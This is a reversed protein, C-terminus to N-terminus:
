SKSNELYYEGNNTEFLMIYMDDSIKNFPSSWTIGYEMKSDDSFYVIIAKVKNLITFFEASIEDEIFPEINAIFYGKNDFKNFAKVASSLDVMSTDSDYCLTIHTILPDDIKVIDEKLITFNKLKDISEYLKSM